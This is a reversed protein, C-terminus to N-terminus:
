YGLVTVFILFQRVWVLYFILICCGSQRYWPENCSTGNDVSVIEPILLTHTLWDTIDSEKHRWPSYGALNRWGHFERSLVVPTPLWEPDPSRGSGPILVLDGVNWASEKSASGGPFGLLLTPSLKLQINFGCYTLDLKAQSLIWRSNM